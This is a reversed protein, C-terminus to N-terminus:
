SENQDERMINVPVEEWALVKGFRNMSRIARRLGKEIESPLEKELLPNNDVVRIDLHVKVAKTIVM